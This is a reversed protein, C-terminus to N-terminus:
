AVSQTFLRPPERCILGKDLISSSYKTKRIVLADVRNELISLAFTRKFLADFIDCEIRRRAFFVM